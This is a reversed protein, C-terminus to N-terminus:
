RTGGSFVLSDLLNVALDTVEQNDSITVLLTAITASPHCREAHGRDAADGLAEMHRAKEHPDHAM